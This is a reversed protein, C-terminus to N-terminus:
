EARLRGHFLHDAVPLAEASNTCAGETPCSEGQAQHCRDTTFAKGDEGTRQQGECVESLEQGGEVETGSPVQGKEVVQTRTKMNQGPWHRAVVRPGDYSQGVFEQWVKSKEHVHCVCVGLRRSGPM